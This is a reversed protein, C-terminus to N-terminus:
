RAPIPTASASADPSVAAADSDLTHAAAEVWRAAAEVWRPHANLSPVLVLEDGGLARWREAARLGIEELTELCDAVFAPCLVALRRVGARRLRELEADTYPQIWRARGLRSQFATSYSGPALGLAAALMRSTAFCQARYCRANAPGLAACCDAHALCHSGSPDAARVQREPLGHYSFLVHDARATALAPRAVEVWAAGFGPDDFCPGLARVRGFSPFRRLREFVRALASGTAAEAYQPFLPWVLLRTAGARALAALADDIKPRGYRMGLAVAFGAGLERALAAAFAESHLRLPSGQPTWISRYAAASRRPRVRLIVGHLLLWRLPAPLDIVRPDSLFEGLYRRLARPTPADPTGLQVLLVGQPAVTVAVEAAAV